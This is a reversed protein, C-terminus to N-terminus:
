ILSLNIAIQQSWLVEEQEVHNKRGVGCRFFAMALFRNKSPSFGESFLPIRSLSISRRSALKELETM